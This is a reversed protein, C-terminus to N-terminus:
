PKRVDVGVVGDAECCNLKLLLGVTEETFVGVSPVMGM